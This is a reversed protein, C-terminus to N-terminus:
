GSSVELSHSVQRYKMNDQEVLQQLDERLLVREVGPRDARVGVGRSGSGIKHYVLVYATDRTFTRQIATFSNYSSRSVRHDNFLFWREGSDAASGGRYSGSSSPVSNASTSASTSEASSRAYTYYHGNNSSTGSHVVVGVLAYREHNPDSSLETGHKSSSPSHSGNKRSLLSPSHTKSHTNNKTGNPTDTSGIPLNLQKPYHVDTCIKSERKSHSDFSFRMLTLILYQPAEVIKISREADQLKNCKDCKYKNDGQLKESELFQGLLYEVSDKKSADRSLKPASKQKPFALPLDYFPELKVSQHGCKLCTYTNQIKGCYTKQVLSKPIDSASKAADPTLAPKKMEQEHM